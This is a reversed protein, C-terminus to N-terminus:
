WAMKEMLSELALQVREDKAGEMSLTLSLPDVCGHNATAEPTYRWLEVVCTEVDPTPISKPPDMKPWLRSALAYSPEKPEALETMAALASEGARLTAAPPLESARVRRRQRIPSRLYFQARRWIVAPEAALRVIRERGQLDAQVLGNAELAKVAQSISAATCGLDEAASTVTIPPLMRQLLLAILLQQATPGLTQVPTPRLRKPRQTTEASGIAPWFLQRGPVVFAQGLEVLRRRLYPSLHDAVLCTGKPRPPALDELQALQKVLQLPPAPDSQRLLAVLWTQGEHELLAPEYRQKLYAPLAAGRWPQLAPELGTTQQVYARLADFSTHMGSGHWLSVSFYICKTNNLIHPRAPRELMAEM